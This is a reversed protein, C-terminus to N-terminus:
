GLNPSRDASMDDRRLAHLLYVAAMFLCIANFQHLMALVLEVGSIVVAIGLIIQVLSLAAVLGLPVRLKSGIRTRAIVRYAVAGILLAVFALWRHIFAVTLPADILNRLAPQVQHLLGEPIWRGLMRPWSNSVHGAKLGATFAGYAIQVLLAGLAALAGRSAASWRSRGLDPSVGFRHGLWTWVALGILALALFLHGALALHSVAPRDVLGSSVMIWGMTAQFLFLVGMALYIPAERWPIRRTWLFILLPVVFVLGAARALLRHLWEVVFIEQYASLSMGRNIQLYEPTQQYKLFETEWDAQSLPPLTGHVPNWEVISLGSRTLRVYGGYVVLLVAVSGFIAIWNMVTRNPTLSM